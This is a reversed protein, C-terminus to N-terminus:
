IVKQVSVVKTPTSSDYTQSVWDDPNLSISNPTSNNINLYGNWNPISSTYWSTQNGSTSAQLSRGSVVGYSPSNIICFSPSGVVPENMVLLYDRPTDTTVKALIPYPLGSPAVGGEELETIRQNVTGLLDSLTKRLRNGERLPRIELTDSM